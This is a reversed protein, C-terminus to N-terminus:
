KDEPKERSIQANSSLWDDYPESSGLCDYVFNNTKDLLGWNVGDKWEGGPTLPTPSLASWRMALVPEELVEKSQDDYVVVAFMGIPPIFVEGETLKEALEDFPYNIEEFRVENGELIKLKSKLDSVKSPMAEIVHDLNILKDALRLFRM